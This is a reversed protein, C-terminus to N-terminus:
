RRPLQPLGLQFNPPGLFNANSQSQNLADQLAPEVQALRRDMETTDAPNAMSVGISLFDSNIQGIQRNNDDIQRQADQFVSRQLEQLRQAQTESIRGRETGSLDVLRGIYDVSAQPQGLEGTPDLDAAIAEIEALSQYQTQYLQGNIDQLERIRQQGERIDNYIRLQTRQDLTADSSSAREIERARAAPNNFWDLATAANQVDLAQSYAASQRPNSLSAQRLSTLNNQLTVNQQIRQVDTQFIDTLAVGSIGANNLLLQLQAFAANREERNGSLQSNITSAEQLVATVISQQATLRTADAGAASYAEIVAPYVGNLVQLADIGSMDHQTLYSGLRNNIQETVANPNSSVGGHTLQNVLPMIDLKLQNLRLERAQAQADELENVWRAGQEKQVENIANWGVNTITQLTEADLKGAYQQRLQRLMATYTPILGADSANQSVDRHLQVIRGRLENEFEAALQQREAQQRGSQVKQFMELGSQIAQVTGSFTSAFNNRGRAQAEAQAARANSDIVQQNIDFTNQVSQNARALFEPARDDIQVSPAVPLEVQPLAGIGDIGAIQIAGAPQGQPRRRPTRAADTM